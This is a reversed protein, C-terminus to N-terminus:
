GPWAEHMAVPTRPPGGFEERVHVRIGSAHLHWAVAAYVEHQWRLRTLTLGEDVVHSGSRARELRRELVVEPPPLQVDFVYRNRWDATFWWRKAPPVRIKSLDPPRPAALWEREFVTRSVKHDPFPIAFHLERPRLSLPFLRWWGPAAIDISGEEPWGGLTEVITSKGTGPPGTVLIERFRTGAPVRLGRLEELDSILATELPM